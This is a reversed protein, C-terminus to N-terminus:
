GGSLGPVHKLAKGFKAYNVLVGDDLDIEVQQAALPYLVEDEYERLENLVKDIQAIDKLAQTRDRQTAGASISVGELPAPPWKALPEGQNRWPKVEKPM